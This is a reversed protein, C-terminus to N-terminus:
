LGFEDHEGEEIQEDQQRLEEASAIKKELVNLQIEWFAAQVCSMCVRLRVRAVARHRVAPQEVREFVHRGLVAEGLLELEIVGISALLTLSSVREPTAAAWPVLKM